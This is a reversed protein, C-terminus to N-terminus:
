EELWDDEICERTFLTTYEFRHARYKIAEEIVHVMCTSLLCALGIWEWLNPVTGFVAWQFIYAFILDCYEMLAVKTADGLQYGVVNLSLGVFGCLACVLILAVNRLTLDLWMGGAILDSHFVYRNLLIVAPTWIFSGQVTAVIQIQLWHANKATRVLISTLAWSIAMIILFILGAISVPRTTTSGFIFEPQCVFIIGAITLLLTVPFVKPLKEKLFFRAIFVILLPAVFIIAEADGIPVLELGRYWGFVLLFYLGGRINLNVRNERNGYWHQHGRPTKIFWWSFSLLMTIIYRGSLPHVIKTKTEHM